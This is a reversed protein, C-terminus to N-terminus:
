SDCLALIKTVSSWNRATGATHPGLPNAGRSILIALESRGFGGPTHLYMVRGEFAATDRSGKERVKQEAAAVRDVLDPGAEERLFVAHIFKPNHEDPYPNKAVAGALEQRSVVVVRPHVDFAKGIAQEFEEALAETDTEETSFLVNGSQIYTSVETHGLSATVQKLDPMSVKNHGGVNIGRLLAVHTAM